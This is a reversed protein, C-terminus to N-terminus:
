TAHTSCALKAPWPNSLAATMKSSSQIAVNRLIVLHELFLFGKQLGELRLSTHKYLSSTLNYIMYKPHKLCVELYESSRGKGDLRRMKCLGVNWDTLLWLKCSTEDLLSNGEDNLICMQTHLASKKREPFVM